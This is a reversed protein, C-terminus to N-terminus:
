HEHHSRAHARSRARCAPRCDTDDLTDHIVIALAGRRAHTCSSSAASQTQLTGIECVHAYPLCHTPHKTRSDHAHTRTITVLQNSTQDEAQSITRHNPALDQIKPKAAIRPDLHM